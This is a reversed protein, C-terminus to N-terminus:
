KKYYPYPEFKPHPHINELPIEFTKRGPENDDSARLTGLHVKMNESVNEVCHAATIIWESSILTGGCVSTTKLLVYFPFQGRSAADQGQFCCYHM